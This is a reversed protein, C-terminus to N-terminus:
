PPARGAPRVALLLRVDEPALRQRGRSPSSDGLASAPVLPHRRADLSLRWGIGTTASLFVATGLLIRFLALPAAPLPRTWFDWLFRLPSRRRPAAATPAPPAETFLGAATMPAERGPRVRGPAVPRPGRVAQPGARTG